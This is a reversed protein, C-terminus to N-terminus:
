ILGAALHSDYTGHQTYFLQVKQKGDTYEAGLRSRVYNEHRTLVVELDFLYIIPLLANIM